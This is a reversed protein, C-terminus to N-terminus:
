LSCPSLCRPKRRWARRRGAGAAPHLASRSPPCAASIHRAPRDGDRPYGVANSRRTKKAAAPVTDPQAAEVGRASQSHGAPPHNSPYTSPCALGRLLSAAPPRLLLLFFPTELAAMLLQNRASEPSVQLSAGHRSVSPSAPPLYRFRFSTSTLTILVRSVTRNLDSM